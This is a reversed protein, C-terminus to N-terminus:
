LDSIRGKQIEVYRYPMNCMAEDILDNLNVWERGEPLWVMLEKNNDSTTIIEKIDEYENFGRVQGGVTEDIRNYGYYHKRTCVGQEVRNDFVDSFDFDEDYQNRSIKRPFKMQVEVPKEEKM